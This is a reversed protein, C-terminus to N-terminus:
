HAFKIHKYKNQINAYKSTRTHEIEVRKTTVSLSKAQTSSKLFCVDM